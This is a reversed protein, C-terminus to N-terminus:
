ERMDFLPVMFSIGMGLFGLTTPSLGNGGWRDLLLLRQGQVRKGSDWFRFSETPFRGMLEKITPIHPRLKPPLLVRLGRILLILQQAINPGPIPHYSGLMLSPGEGEFAPNPSSTSTGAVGRKKLLRLYSRLTRPALALIHYRSTAGMTVYGAGPLMGIPFKANLDLAGQLPKLWNTYSIADQGKGMKKIRGQFGSIKGKSALKFLPNLFNKLREEPGPSKERREVLLLVDTQIKGFYFFNVILSGKLDEPSAPNQSLPLGLLARALNLSGAWTEKSLPNSEKQMEMLFKRWWDLNIRFRFVLNSDLPQLFALKEAGEKMPLLSHFFSTVPSDVPASEQIWTRERFSPGERWLRSELREIPLLGLSSRQEWKKRNPGGLAAERLPALRFLLRALEVGRPIPSMSDLGVESKKSPSLLGLATAMGVAAKNRFRKAFAKRDTHEWSPYRKELPYLTVRNGQQLYALGALGETVEEGKSRIVEEEMWKARIKQTAQKSSQSGVSPLTLEEQETESPGLLDALVDLNSELVKPKGGEGQLIPGFFQPKGKPGLNVHLSLSFGKELSRLQEALVRGAWIETQVLGSFGEKIKDQEALWMISPLSFGSAFLNFPTLHDGQGELLRLPAAEFLLITNGPLQKNWPLPFRIPPRDKETGLKAEQAKGQSFLTLISLLLSFSRLSFEM